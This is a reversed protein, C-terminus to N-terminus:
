FVAMRASTLLHVPSRIICLGHLHVFGRDSLKWSAHRGGKGWLAGSQLSLRGLRPLGHMAPVSLCISLYVGSQQKVSVLISAALTILCTVCAM